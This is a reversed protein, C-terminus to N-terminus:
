DDRQQWRRIMDLLQRLETRRLLLREQEARLAEEEEEEKSVRDTLLALEVSIDCIRQKGRDLDHLVLEKPDESDDGHDAAQKLVDMFLMALGQCLPHRDLLALVGNASYPDDGFQLTTQPPREPVVGITRRYHYLSVAGVVLVAVALAQEVTTAWDPRPLHPRAYLATITVMELVSAAKGPANPRNLYNGQSLTIAGGAVVIVDRLVMLALLTTMGGPPPNWVLLALGCLAMAIRDAAPDLRQGFLTIQGLRRALHGDVWDSLAIVILLTIVLTSDGLGRATLAFIVGGGCLRFFSIVNPVTLTRSMPQVIAEAFKEDVGLRVTNRATRASRLMAAVVGAILGTLVTWLVSRTGAATILSPGIAVPAVALIARLPRDGGYELATTISWRQPDGTFAAAWERLLQLLLRPSDKRLAHAERLAGDIARAQTMRDDGSLLGACIFLAIERALRLALRPRDQQQQIM